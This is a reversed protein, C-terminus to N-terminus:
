KGSGKYFLLLRDVQSKQQETFLQSQQNKYFLVTQFNMYAWAHWAKYWTNDHETATSYCKLITPISLENIGKLQEQWLGLKM